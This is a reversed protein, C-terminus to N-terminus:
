SASASPAPPTESGTDHPPEPPADKPPTPPSSPSRVSAPHASGTTPPYPSTTPPPAAPAPPPLPKHACAPFATEAYPETEGTAPPYPAPPNYKHAAQPPALAPTSPSKERAATLHRNRTWTSANRGTRSSSTHMCRIQHQLHLLSIGISSSFSNAETCTKYLSAILAVFSNRLRQCMGSSPTGM